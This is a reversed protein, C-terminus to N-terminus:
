ISELARDTRRYSLGHLQFVEEGQFFYGLKQPEAGLREVLHKFLALYRGHFNPALPAEISLLELRPELIM